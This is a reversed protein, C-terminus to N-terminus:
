AENPLRRGEFAALPNDLFLAQAVHKAAANPSPILHRAGSSYRPPEEYQARGSAVSIPCSTRGSGNNPGAGARPSWFARPHHSRHDALRQGPAALSVDGRAELAACRMAARSAYHHAVVRYSAPPPHHYRHVAPHFIRRIGGAPLEESQHYREAANERSGESQRLESPFRMGIVLKLRDGVAAQLEDRRQRIIKPDFKYRSNAHPTGVVHTVGEAIASEAMQISTELMDAVGDDLGHLIHCHIDVMPTHKWLLYGFSSDHVVDPSTHSAKGQPRRATRSIMVPSRTSSNRSLTRPM